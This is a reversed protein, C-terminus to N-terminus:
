QASEATHSIVSRLPEQELRQALQETATIAGAMNCHLPDRFHLPDSDIDHLDVFFINKNDALGGYRRELQENHATADTLQCEPLWLLVLKLNHDACYKKVRNFWDLSWEKDYWDCWMFPQTKSIERLLEQRSRVVYGSSTGYGSIETAVGQNPKFSNDYERDFDVAYGISNFLKDRLFNRDRVLSFNDEAFQSLYQPLTKPGHFRRGIYTNGFAEMNNTKSEHFHKQFADMRLDYFVIPKVTSHTVAENLMLLHEDVCSAQTALNKPYTEIGNERLRAQLLEPYVALKTFSGGIFVLQNPCDVPRRAAVLKADFEPSVARPPHTLVVLNRAVFEAALAACLIALVIQLAIKVSSGAVPVEPHQDSAVSTGHTKSSTIQSIM